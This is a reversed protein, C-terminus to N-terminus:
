VVRQLAVSAQLRLFTHAFARLWLPAQVLTKNATSSFPSSDRCGIQQQQRQHKQQLKKAQIDQVREVSTRIHKELADVIKEDLSHLVCFNIALERANDGEHIEM